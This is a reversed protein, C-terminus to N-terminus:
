LSTSTPRMMLLPLTLLFLPILVLYKMWIYFRTSVSIHVSDEFYQGHENVMGIVLHMSEPPSVPLEVTYRGPASFEKRLMPDLRNTGRTFVVSYRAPASKDVVGARTDWIDFTIPIFEGGKVDMYRLLKKERLPISLGAQGHTFVNGRHKPFSSWTNLPHHPIQLLMAFRYLIMSINNNLSLQRVKTELLHVHGSVTGVVIDLMGNGTVDDVLPTSFMHDGIDIREACSHVGDMIYLHGDFSPIIMHLGRPKPSQADQAAYWEKLIKNRKRSGRPATKTRKAGEEAAKPAAAGGGKGSESGEGGAANAGSRGRLELRRHGAGGEEEEEEEEEPETLTWDDMRSADVPPEEEKKTGATASEPEPVSESSPVAVSVHGASDLTWMPANPDAYTAPSLRARAIDSYDNLDVLIIPASVEGGAPLAFPYGPLIAGLIGHCDGDMHTDIYRGSSDYSSVPTEESPMYTIGKWLLLLWLSM